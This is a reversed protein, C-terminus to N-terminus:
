NNNSNNFEAAIPRLLKEIVNSKQPM